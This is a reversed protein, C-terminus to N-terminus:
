AGLQACLQALRRGYPTLRYGGSSAGKSSILLGESVMESLRRGKKNANAGGWAKDVIQDGTLPGDELIAQLVERKWSEIEELTAVDDVFSLWGVARRLNHVYYKGPWNFSYLGDKNKVDQSDQSGENLSWQALSVAWQIWEKQDHEVMRAVDRELEEVTSVVDAVLARVIKREHEQIKQWPIGPLSQRAWGDSHSEVVQGMAAFLGNAADTFRRIPRVMQALTLGAPKRAM